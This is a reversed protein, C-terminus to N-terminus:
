LQKRLGCRQIAGWIQSGLGNQDLVIITEPVRKRNLNIKAIKFISQNNCYLVLFGGGRSKIVKFNKSM